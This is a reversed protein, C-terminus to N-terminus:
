RNSFHVLHEHATAISLYYEAAIRQCFEEYTEGTSRHVIGCLRLDRELMRVGEGEVTTM